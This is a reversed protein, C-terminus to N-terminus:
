FDGSDLGFYLHIVTGSFSSFLVQPEQLLPLLTTVQPLVHALVVGGLASDCLLEHPVLLVFAHAWVTVRPHNQDVPDAWLEDDPRPPLVEEPPYNSLPFNNYYAIIM